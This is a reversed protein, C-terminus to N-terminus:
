SRRPPNCLPAAQYEPMERATALGHRHVFACRLCRRGNTPAARGNICEGAEKRAARVHRAKVANVDASLRVRQVSWTM